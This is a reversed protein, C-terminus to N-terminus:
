DFNNQLGFQLLQCAVLNVAAWCPLRQRLSEVSPWIEHTPRFSLHFSDRDMTLGFMFYLEKKRIWVRLSNFQLPLIFACACVTCEPRLRAEAGEAGGHATAALGETRHRRWGEGM